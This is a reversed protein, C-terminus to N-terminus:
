PLPRSARWASGHDYSVSISLKGDHAEFTVDPWPHHSHAAVHLRGPAAGLFRSFHEKM